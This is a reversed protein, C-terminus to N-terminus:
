KRLIDAYLKSLAVFVVFIELRGLFMGITGTWLIVSPADYGIIGTSLGVTSLASAFEFISDQFTYGYSTIILTGILLIMIYAMIFGHNMNIDMDTLLHKKGLRNVFHKKVVNKHDVQQKIQWYANKIAVVVRYQKIGGATSGFGGGIIMLIIVSSIFFRPLAIQFDSVTQFGTTTIASIFQFSSIRLSELFSYGNYLYVSTILLPVLIIALVMVFILESHRIVTGIKGTLLKLHIVFNTGGLLMLVMTIIEISLSNYHGISDVKTSFGGTSVSAISHNIADFAPMGAIIYAITGTIIYVAYISLIMRASKLLNPMLKDNHGEAFYLRMGVKDSIASTIVLVFGVGGVFLLITRYILFIHPAVSVDVVSLGTTSFGSTVEFVSQTFNYQGTLLFPIAGLLIAIVWVLVVLLADQHRELNTKHCGRYIFNIVYGIFLSGVGPLIFYKAQDMEAPYFPLILLPLLIVIGIFIIFTGIYNIILPYGSLQREKM